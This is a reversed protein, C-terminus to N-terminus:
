KEYELCFGVIKDELYVYFLDANSESPNCEGFFGFGGRYVNYKEYKKDMGGYVDQDKDFVGIWASDYVSTKESDTARIVNRELFQTALQEFLLFNEENEGPSGRVLEKIKLREEDVGVESDLFAMFGEILVLDNPNGHYSVEVRKSLFGFYDDLFMVGLLFLYIFAGLFILVTAVMWTMTSPGAGADGRRNMRM